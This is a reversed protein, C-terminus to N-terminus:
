WCLLRARIKNMCPPPPVSARLRIRAQRADGLLSAATALNSDLATVGFGVSKGDGQSM